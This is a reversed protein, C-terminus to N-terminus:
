GQEKESLFIEGTIDFVDQLNIITKDTFSLTNQIEDIKRLNGEVTQYVGGQKKADPVFYLVSIKPQSKLHSILFQVKMDLQVKDDESLEIRSEVYRSAEHIADGYGRLAAFPAFQAARDQMSMRPHKTSRHHPLHIIDNYRSM